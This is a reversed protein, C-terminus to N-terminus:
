IESLIRTKQHEYDQYDIQGSEYLQYIQRLRNELTAFSQNSSPSQVAEKNDLPSHKPGFLGAFGGQPEAKYGENAMTWADKLESWADNWSQKAM